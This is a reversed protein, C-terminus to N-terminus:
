FTCVDKHVKRHNKQCERDCYWVKKCPCGKWETMKSGCCDCFRVSQMECFNGDNKGKKWMKYAMTGREFEQSMLCKELAKVIHCLEVKCKLIEKNMKCRRKKNKKGTLNAKETELSKINEYHDDRMLSLGIIEDLNSVWGDPVGIGIKNCPIEFEMSM